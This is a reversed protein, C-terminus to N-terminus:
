LFAIVDDHMVARAKSYEYPFQGERSDTLRKFARSSLETGCPSLHRTRKSVGAKGIEAELSARGENTDRGLSPRGQICVLSIGWAM